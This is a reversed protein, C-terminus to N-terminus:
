RAQGREGCGGRGLRMSRCSTCAGRPRTCLALAPDGRLNPDACSVRQSRTYPQLRSHPHLCTAEYRMYSQVEDPTASSWVQNNRRSSVWKPMPKPKLKPACIHYFPFIPTQYRPSSIRSPTNRPPLFQLEPSSIPTRICGLLLIPLLSTPSSSILCSKMSEGCVVGCSVRCGGGEWVVPNGADKHRQQGLLTV